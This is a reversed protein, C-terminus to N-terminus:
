HVFEIIFTDLNCSIVDVENTHIAGTADDHWEITVTQPSGSTALADILNNIVITAYMTEMENNHDLLFTYNNTYHGNAEDGNFRVKRTGAPYVLSM